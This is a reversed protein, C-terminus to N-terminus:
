PHPRAPNEPGYHEKLIRSRNPHRLKQLAKEKIQRVRERTLGLRDGIQDLTLPDNGDLGYYERIIRRERGDLCSFAVEIERQLDEDIVAADPSPQSPDALRALLNDEEEDKFQADLSRM